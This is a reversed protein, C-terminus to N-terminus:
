FLARVLSIQLTLTSDKIKKKVTAVGGNNVADKLVVSLEKASMNADLNSTNFVVRGQVQLQCRIKHNNLVLCFTPHKAPFGDDRSMQYKIWTDFLM